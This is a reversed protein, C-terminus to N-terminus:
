QFFIFVQHFNESGFTVLKFYKKKFTESSLKPIAIVLVETQPFFDLVIELVMKSLEFAKKKKLNQLKVGFIFPSPYKFM